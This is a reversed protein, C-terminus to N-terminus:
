EDSNNKILRCGFKESEYVAIAKLGLFSAEIKNQSTKVTTPKLFNTAYHDCHKEDYQEVYICSCYEKAYFAPLARLFPTCSSSLLLTALLIFNKM